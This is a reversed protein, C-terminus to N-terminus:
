HAGPPCAGLWKGTSNLTVQEPAGRASTTVNMAMTFGTDGIYTLTGRGSSAPNTCAFSM